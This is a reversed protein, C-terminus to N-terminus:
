THGLVLYPESKSSIDACVNRECYVTQHTLNKQLHELHNIEPSCTGPSCTIELYVHSRWTFMNWTGPSCTGHELHNRLLFFSHNLSQLSKASYIPSMTIAACQIVPHSQVVPWYWDIFWNPSVGPPARRWAQDTHNHSFDSSSFVSGSALSSREDTTM